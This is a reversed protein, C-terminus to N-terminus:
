IAGRIPPPGILPATHGTEFVHEALTSAPIDGNKPAHHHGNARQKLCRRTQGVHGCKSIQCLSHLLHGKHARGNPSPGKASQDCRVCQM